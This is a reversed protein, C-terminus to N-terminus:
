KSFREFNKNLLASHVTSPNPLPLLTSILNDEYPGTKAGCNFVLVVILITNIILLNLINKKKSKEVNNNNFVAILICMIVFSWTCFEGGGGM